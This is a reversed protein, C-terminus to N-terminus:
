SGYSDLLLSLSLNEKRIGSSESLLGVPSVETWQQKGAHFVHVLCVVSIEDACQPECLQAHASTCQM